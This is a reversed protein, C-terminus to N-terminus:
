GVLYAQRVQESDRIEAMNGELLVRGRAMVIVSTCIREVVDLEHEVMLLTMGDASLRALLREIELGVVRNVGAMPEDLLLLRPQAMLARAIEVLRREGGSLEGAYLDEHRRLGLSELLARGQQVLQEEDRRWARRRALAGIISEGRGPRAGLLLNEMVTLRPFVSATQFTRIVGRQAVRYPPLGTTDAGAVRVTGGDPRISGAILGLLTSKGAGNPGIIGTLSGQPVDFSVSDVARVGGYSRRLDRVALLPEPVSGERWTV